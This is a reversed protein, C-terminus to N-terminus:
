VLAESASPHQREEDTDAGSPKEAMWCSGPPRHGSCLGRMAKEPVEQRTGEERPGEQCGPSSLPHLAAEPEPFAQTWRQGLGQGGVQSRDLCAGEESRRQGGPAGRPSAGQEM